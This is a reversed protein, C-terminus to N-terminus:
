ADGGEQVEARLALKAYLWTDREAGKVCTRCWHGDVDPPREDPGPIATGCYAYWERTALNGEIYHICGRPSTWTGLGTETIM